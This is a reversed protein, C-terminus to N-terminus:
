IESSASHVSKKCLLPREKPRANPEAHRLDDKHNRAIGFGNCLALPKGAVRNGDGGIQAAHEAGDLDKPPAAFGKPKFIAQVAAGELHIGPTRNDAHYNATQQDGERFFFGAGPDLVAGLHQQERQEAACQETVSGTERVAAREIVQQAANRQHGNFRRHDNDEHGDATQRREEQHRLVAEAFEEFVLFCFGVDLHRLFLFQQRIAKGVVGIIVRPSVGPTPHSQDIKDQENDGGHEVEEAGVGLVANGVRAGGEHPNTQARADNATKCHALRAKARFAGENRDFRSM